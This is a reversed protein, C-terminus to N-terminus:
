TSSPVRPTKGGKFSNWSNEYALKAELDDVTKKCELYMKKYDIGKRLDDLQRELSQVREEARKQHPTDRYMDKYLDFLMANDKTFKRGPIRGERKLTLKTLEDAILSGNNGKSM